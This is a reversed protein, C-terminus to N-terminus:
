RARPGSLAASILERRQEERGNGRRMEGKEGKCAQQERKRGHGGAIKGM